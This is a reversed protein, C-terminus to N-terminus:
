TGDGLAALEESFPVLLGSVAPKSTHMLNEFMEEKWHLQMSVEQAYACSLGGIYLAAGIM